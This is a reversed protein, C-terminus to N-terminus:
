RRLNVATSMMEDAAQIVKSSLEYSRQATIMSVLEEAVDVNSGELAFQHITGRGEAGPAGSQAEGSAPTARFYNGGIAELGGPNSFRTLTFPALTTAELVGDSLVNATVTGDEAVTLTMTGEPVQIGPMVKYGSATILNGESDQTFAGDRTYLKDGDPTEVEFYGDDQIMFDTPNNTVQADGTRTDRTLSALRVGSGVQLPNTASAGNSGGRTGLSQYVLDEFHERVKKFGTTNANSLNNAINDIKTQYARMGSAATSLARM